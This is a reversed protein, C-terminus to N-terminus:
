SVTQLAEALATRVAQTRSPGPRGKNADHTTLADKVAKVIRSDKAVIALCEEASAREMAKEHNKDFWNSQMM